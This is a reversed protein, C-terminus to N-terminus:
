VATCDYKYRNYQLMSLLREALLYKNTKRNCLTFKSFPLNGINEWKLYGERSISCRVKNLNDHHLCYPVDLIGKEFAILISENLNGSSNLVSDILTKAEYYIQDAEEEDIIFQHIYDTKDNGVLSALELAAINEDITPIRHAEMPAKVIIRECKARSAIQASDLLIKFTGVTTEPFLGMFTYFVVHWDIDPLFEAACKRLIYIASFDQKRNNLQTHSLSVSKVGYQKFFLCELINLAILMSPPCLQGLMCGAFSELHKIEGNNRCPALRKCAEAWNKLAEALPVRSYPMCYSIPGGETADIGAKLAVDIVNLPLPTGHRMQIPFEESQIKSVLLKTKTIGHSIIPYGNLEQNKEIAKKSSKYDGQRTFADLTITGITNANLKKVAELGAKMKGACTFGMRPQVIISKNSKCKKIYNFFNSGKSTGKQSSVQCPMSVGNKHKHEHLERTLFAM